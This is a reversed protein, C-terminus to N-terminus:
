LFGGSIHDPHEAEALELARGVGPPVARGLVRGEVVDALSVNALFLRIQEGLEAWLDHTVCRKGAVCGPGGGVGRRGARGAAHVSSPKGTLDLAPIAARRAEPRLPETANADLYLPGEGAM